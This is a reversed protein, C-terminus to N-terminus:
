RCTNHSILHRKCHLFQPTVETHPSLVLVHSFTPNRPWWSELFRVSSEEETLRPRPIRHRLSLMHPRHGTISTPPPWQYEALFKEVQPEIRNPLEVTLHPTSMGGMDVQSLSKLLRNLNAVGKSPAHVLIDIHVKDWALYRM